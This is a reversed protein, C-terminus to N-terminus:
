LKINSEISRPRVINRKDNKERQRGKIIYKEISDM